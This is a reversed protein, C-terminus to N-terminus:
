LLNFTYFAPRKKRGKEKKLKGTEYPFLAPWWAGSGAKKM